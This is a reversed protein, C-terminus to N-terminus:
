TWFEVVGALKQLNLRVQDCVESCTKNHHPEAKMFHSFQILTDDNKRMRMQKEKSFFM